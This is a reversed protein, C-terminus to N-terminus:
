GAQPTTRLVGKCDPFRSCVWFATGANVGKSMKRVAMTHSCRPCKPSADTAPILDRLGERVEESSLQQVMPLVVLPCRIQRFVSEVYQLRAVESPGAGRLAIGCIVGFNARDCVLFEIQRTRPILAGAGARVFEALPLQAFVRYKDPLVQEIVQLCHRHLDDLVADRVSFIATEADKAPVVADVRVESAKRMALHEEAAKPLDMSEIVSLDADLFKELERRRMFRLLFYLGALVVLFLSFGLM